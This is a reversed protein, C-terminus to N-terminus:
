VQLQKQLWPIAREGCWRHGGAFVHHKLQDAAGLAEYVKRSLAVQSRVNKVGSKGNLPDADGTEIFLGRPAALAGIDGMDFNEWLHPVMNCDCHHNAILLSERVGYFYGSVVAAKVRTDLAALNLTQLGGGSLGACGLRKEDVREDQAAFDLLRMLDWTWMGQVTLGLSTAALMLNHCSSTLWAEPDKADNQKAPERREGFGRADPCLTIFGAKALQLGYDYNNSEIVRTAGPIDHRGSPSYKGGSGHGHPCLVAPLPKEVRTPAFVYFPMVVDRETQLQWEERQLQLGELPTVSIRKARPAVKQFGQLGLLQRLKACAKKQWALAEERTQGAFAM